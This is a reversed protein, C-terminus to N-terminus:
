ARGRCLVARCLLHIRTPHIALRRAFRLLRQGATPLDLTLRSAGVLPLSLRLRSVEPSASVIRVKAKCQLALKKYDERLGFYGSTWDLVTRNGGPATALANATSFIRPVVVDTEATLDFPGMQVVPRLRTDFAAPLASSRSRPANATRPDRSSPAGSPVPLRAALTHADKRYWKAVLASISAHAHERFAPIGTAPSDFPNESIRNAPGNADGGNPWVLDVAPYLTSTDRATARFSYSGTLTM